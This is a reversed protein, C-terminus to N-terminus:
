PEPAPEARSDTGARPKKARVAAAVGGLVVAVWGEVAVRGLDHNEAIWAAWVLGAATLLAAAAAPGKGRVRGVAAMVEAVFLGVLVGTGVVLAGSFPYEGVIVAGFGATAAGAVVALVGRV